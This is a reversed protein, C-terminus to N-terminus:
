CRWMAPDPTSARSPLPPSARGLNRNRQLKRETKDLNHLLKDTNDGPYDSGQQPLTRQTVPPSVELLAPNRRYEAAFRGPRAQEGLIITLMKSKINKHNNLYRQTINFSIQGEEIRNSAM